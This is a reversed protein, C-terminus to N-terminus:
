GCDVFRALAKPGPVPTLNYAGGMIKLGDADLEELNKLKILAQGCFMEHELGEIPAEGKLAAYQPTTDEADYEIMVHSLTPILMRIPAPAMKKYHTKGDKLGEKITALDHYGDNDLFHVDNEIKFSFGTGRPTGERTPDDTCMEATESATGIKIFDPVTGDPKLNFNDETGNDRIFLREPMVGGDKVSFKASFLMDVTDRKKADIKQFKSVFKTIGKTPFCSIRERLQPAAEKDDEAFAPASICLGALIIVKFKM